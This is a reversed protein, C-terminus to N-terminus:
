SFDKRPLSKTMGEAESLAPESAVGFLRGQAYDFPIQTRVPPQRSDCGLNKVENLIVIHHVLAL